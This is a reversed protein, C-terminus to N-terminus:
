GFDSTAWVPQQLLATSTDQDLDRRTAPPCCSMQSSSYPHRPISAVLHCGEAAVELLGQEEYLQLCASESGKWANAAVQSQRKLFTLQVESWGAAVPFHRQLDVLDINAKLVGVSLACCFACAGVCLADGWQCFSKHVNGAKSLMAPVQQLMM